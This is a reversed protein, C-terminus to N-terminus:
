PKPTRTAVALSNTGIKNYYESYKLSKEKYIINEWIVTLMKDEQLLIKIKTKEDDIFDWTFPYVLNDDSREGTKDTNFKIYESDYNINNGGSAGRKYYYPINEQLFRIEDIQWKHSTLIEVPSKEVPKSDDKKCAIFSLTFCVMLLTFPHELKM